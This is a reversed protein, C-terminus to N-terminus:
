TALHQAWFARMRGWALAAQEPRHVDPRGAHFFAHPAPYFHIDPSRGAQRMAQRLGEAAAPTCWDDELAFHGQFPIAIDAPNAVDPSPIGYFCVAAHLGQLTAAAAVTMAGGMCFGMVGLKGHGRRTLWNVCGALDMALADGKDLAAKLGAAASPDHTLVGRYFDPALVTYGLTALRRATDRMGENLGWWEHILIIAATGPAEGGAPVFFAPLSGGDPRSVHLMQEPVVNMPRM